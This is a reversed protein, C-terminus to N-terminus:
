VNKEMERRARGRVRGEEGRERKGEKCNVHQLFWTM